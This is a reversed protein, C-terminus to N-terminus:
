INKRSFLLNVVKKFSLFFTVLFNMNGWWPRERLVGLKLGGSGKTEGGALRHNWATSTKTPIEPHKRLHHYGWKVGWTMIMELLFVWPNTPTEGVM